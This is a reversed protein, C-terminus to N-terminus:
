DMVFFFRPVIHKWKNLTYSTQVHSVSRLDRGISLTKKLKSKLQFIPCFRDKSKMYASYQQIIGSLTSSHWALIHLLAGGYLEM